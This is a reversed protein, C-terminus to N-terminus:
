GPSKKAEDYFRCSHRLWQYWAKMGENLASSLHLISVKQNIRQIYNECQELDFQVYPLLDTKTILVLDAGRFMDPYKLPKNDGETVSLLVIKYAEGLDFSAPCVLNGVNEIFLIANDQISLDEVAHGIMHADLHCVRGTNIQLAQAGCDKLTAADADTQQDGVIVAMPRTQKFDYFTKGLLTTKGAGPSSMLNLATINRHQFYSRNNIAYQKNKALLDEEVAIINSDGHHHHVEKVDQDHAQNSCGCIGCMM